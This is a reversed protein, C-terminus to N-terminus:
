KSLFLAIQSWAAEASKADFGLTLGNHLTLLEPLAEVDFGHRAEPYHYTRVVATSSLRDILTECESPPAIDDKGALLILVPQSGRWPAITRCGPYIAVLKRFPFDDSHSESMAALVGGGGLSNGILYLRAPDVRPDNAAIRGAELAFSGVESFPIEGNCANRVDRATLYDVVFVLFGRARLEEAKLRNHRRIVPDGPDGPRGEDTDPSFSVGSCGPIYVIAPFHGEGNPVLVRIHPPVEEAGLVACGTMVVHIIFFLISAWGSGRRSRRVQRCNRVVVFRFVEGIGWWGIKETVRYHAITQGTM